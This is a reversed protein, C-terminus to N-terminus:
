GLLLFPLEKRKRSLQVSYLSLLSEKDRSPKASHLLLARRRPHYFTSSTVLWSLVIYDGERRHFCPKHIVFVFDLLM